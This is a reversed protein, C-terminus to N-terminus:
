VRAGGGSSCSCQSTTCGDDTSSCGGGINLKVPASPTYTTGDSVGGYQGVFWYAGGLGNGTNGGGGCSSGGAANMMARAANNITSGVACIASYNCIAEYNHNVCGGGTADGDADPDFNQLATVRYPLVIMQGPEIIDPVDNMFEILAYDDGAPLSANVNDANILGYNTLTFEGRFVDGKKMMPLNVSMPEFVVVPAPVNTEYTAALVVEYRDELTIERVSFEVTILQNMLFVEESVSIGAKVWIHGSASEHDFASARYAYRGAPIDSLFADGNADTTIEFVESLVNENQLKIKTGSLGLIPQNGEDLTATYIDSTHLAVNGLGSQTVAVLVPITLTNLNDSELVLNFQYNGELVGSDPNFSVQIDRSESVPIEGIISSTLLSLWDPADTGDTKKLSIRANNLTDLGKNKISLSETISQELSLGTDIHSPSPTIVPKAETLFYNVTVVDVPETKNDAMVKYRVSGQDPTLNNGSLTLTLYGSRNETLTLPDSTNLQLGDPLPIEINETDLEPIRELHVNTLETSRGSTIKINISYDYNRPITISARTPSVGAGEVVFQGQNPRTLMDPHIVSIRYDGSETTSSVYDYSFNGESNTYVSFVREFGRVTIILKLPVNSLQQTTERDIAQGSITVAEGAFVSEPTVTAVQGFYATEELYVSQSAATGEIAVHTDRGTHYHLKDVELRLIVQDPAAEPVAIEFYQSTFQEGPMVRAVTDRNTTTIVDGTIQRVAKTSLINGDLDELVLRVDVSDSQGSNRAMLMETEVSSSNSLIIRAKGAAGRVFEDVELTATLASQGVQLSASQKITISEGAKPKQELSLNLTTLADLGSYGGVIVPVDVFGGASVSFSESLHSHSTSGDMANVRLRINQADHNGSNVVRFSLENMIGRYLAVTNGANNLAVSLAPLRLSHGISESAQNDIAVVSYRREILAGNSTEGSNYEDDQYQKTINRVTNLLTQSGEEGQYLDFGDLNSSGHQWQLIPRSDEELVISLNNVPLLTVNLYQSNSALSENGASDVATVVYLHETDSPQSDLAIVDPINSQLATYLTTDSVEAGDAMDVRYLNYKLSGNSIESGPPSWRIVVGAGNLELTMNEPADPASADASVTIAQSHASLSEQSNIRRLSAITYIYAGDTLAQAEGDQYSEQGPVDISVLETLETEDPAQRYIVYGAADTVFKWSLAVQGNAKSLGAFQAPTNLPPLDGQYVQFRPYGKISTVENDLDDRAKYQFSLQEASPNGLEDQGATYPLRFQGVYVPASVESQANKTLTIGASYDEIPENNIGDEIVPILVPLELSKMDDDLTLIVEVLQGLSSEDLNNQIPASPNVTISAVQPGKTDINVTAGLEVDTGRNGVEDFASIVAYATGSFGTSKVQIQGRYITEDGYDKQLDASLPLGGPIAIAFYPKTRLPESFTLTVNVAGVGMRENIEDYAGLPEYDISVVKPALSDAPTIATNSLESESSLENVSALRYHYEGDTVPMDKYSSGTILDTNVKEVGGASRDEFDNLSRYLNFGKIRHDEAATWNLVVQGLPKSLASLSVPANPVTTDLKINVTASFSGEENRSPYAATATLANMGEVIMVTGTFSGQANTLTADGQATGGVYLRISTNPVSEGTVTIDTQNTIASEIPNIITPANPAALDVTVNLTQTSVNDLSDYAKVTLTHSGDALDVLSISQAFWPAATLDIGLPSGDLLYEVRSVGSPDSASVRVAGSLNLLGGDTLAASLENSFYSIDDITPGILDAQPTASQAVVVTNEVGSANVATVAIYYNQGNTLGAVGRTLISKNVTVKPTLASVSIFDNTEVYLRYEKLLAESAVAQWDINLQGDLSEVTDVTPNALLTVGPDTLGITENGDNDVASVRVPNGTMAGLGAVDYNVETANIPLDAQNIIESRTSGNETIYVKYGALDDHSNISAAWRLSLSTEAASVKLNTVEEPAVIDVPTVAVSSVANQKLAQQDVAVIAFYTAQARTLGTTQYTKAQVANQLVTAIPTLGSISTFSAAQSYVEYHKIDGGNTAEDYSTWNLLAETGNGQNNTTFAVQGPAINDFRINVITAESINGAQDQLQFRLSNDGPQM